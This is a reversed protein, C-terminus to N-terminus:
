QVAQRKEIRAIRKEFDLAALSDKGVARGLARVELRVESIREELKNRMYDVNDKTVLDSLREEINSIRADISMLLKLVRSNAAVQKDKKSAM